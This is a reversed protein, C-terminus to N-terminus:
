FMPKKWIFGLSTYKTVKRISSVAYKGEGIADDVRDVLQLIEHPEAEGKLAKKIDILLPVLDAYALAYGEANATSHLDELLAYAFYNESKSKIYLEESDYGNSM